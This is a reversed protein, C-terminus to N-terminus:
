IFQETVSSINVAAIEYYSVGRFAFTIKLYSTGVLFTIQGSKLWFTNAPRILEQNKM